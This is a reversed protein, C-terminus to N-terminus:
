EPSADRIAAAVRAVDRMPQVDHVRVVDAGGLVCAAVAAGTGWLRDGTDPRDLISGIFSKRSPGVLVPRGVGDRIRATGAILELNQTATKAFGIGPDIMFFEESLGTNQVAWAVRRALENCVDELVDDYTTLTQMTGPTGRMHMLICGAQYEAVVSAMVPDRSLASVDNVIVAGAALAERATEAKVTDISIPVGTAEALRRIVPVVREIEVAAPVPPAGPRTSEGGVDIMDAGEEVLKLGHAVARVVDDHQGGDSFSDPTVNLIGMILPEPGCQLCETGYRFRHFLPKM